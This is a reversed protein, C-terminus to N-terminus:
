KANAELQEFWRGQDEVGYAFAGRHDAKTDDIDAKIAIASAGGV